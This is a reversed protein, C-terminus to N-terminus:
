PFGAPPSSARCWWCPRPGSTSAAARRTSGHATWALGCGNCGGGVGRRALWYLATAGALAAVATLLLVLALDYPPATHWAVVAAASVLAGTPIVPVVAGLVVLVFLTPYGVAQSATSPAMTPDVVDSALALLWPAATM